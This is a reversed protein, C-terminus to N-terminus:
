RDDAPNTVHWAFTSLASTGFAFPLPNTTTADADGSLFGPTSPPAVWGEFTIEEAYSIYIM